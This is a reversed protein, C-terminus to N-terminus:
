PTSPGAFVCATTRLGVSGRPADKANFLVVFHYCDFHYLRVNAAVKEVESPTRSALPHEVIVRPHEPLGLM